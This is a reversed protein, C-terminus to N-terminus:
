KLHVGTASHPFSDAGAFMADQLGCYKAATSPVSPSPFGRPLNSLVFIM